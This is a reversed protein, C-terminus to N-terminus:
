IDLRYGLALTLLTADLDGSYDDNTGPGSIPMIEEKIDYELKTKSWILEVSFVDRYEAGIGLAYYCGGDIDYTEKYDYSFNTGTSIFMEDVHVFGLNGFIYPKWEGENDAKYRVLGYIPCTDIDRLHENVTNHENPEVKAYGVGGGYELGSPTTAIYEVNLSINAATDQDGLEEGAFNELTDDVDLEGDTLGMKFNLSHREPIYNNGYVATGLIGICIM